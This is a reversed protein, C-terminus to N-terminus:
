KRRYMFLFAIESTKIMIAPEKGASHRPFVGLDRQRILVDSPQEVVVEHVEDVVGGHRDDVLDVVVVVRSHNIEDVVEM